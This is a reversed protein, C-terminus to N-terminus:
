GAGGLPACCPGPIPPPDLIASPAHSQRQALASKPRGAVAHLDLVAYLGNRACIEVARDLLRFGEAKLVFPDGDDEFHRYNFPIRVSNLGLSALYEADDDSFFADSFHKFFLSYREPGLAGLMAERHQSETTPYGTLFNEMNMWGGVNYGRLALSRGDGDVIQSGSVSLFRGDVM